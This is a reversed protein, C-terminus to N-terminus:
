LGLSALSIVNIGDSRTYTYGTGTIINLSSPPLIKSTDIDQAITKLNEVASDIDGVGLKVEFAAWKGGFGSVIIDIERDYSDRYYSVGLYNREAYVKIDHYVLSEFLFGVYKLDNRITSLDLKLAAVAISTDAFHRKPTKRLSASSRIHTRWAPQNELVMIRELTELYDYVTPKTASGEGMDAILTSSDVPTAINRALSALLAKVKVPDRRIGSVKSMDTETLQEFYANNVASFKNNSMGILAPWGGRALTEIIVSLETHTQLDQKIKKGGLVLDKLSVSGSSLGQEIWSMTRMNIITFRGVGSHTRANDDPTASGTLIFQGKKQRNDVEHRIYDWLKPQTQWEDFLRPTDGVLLESPSVSMTVAVNPDIDVQLVSNAFRKATETKGCSKIGRVWVAGSAELNDKLLDDVIRKHYKMHLLM